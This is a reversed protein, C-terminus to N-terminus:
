DAELQIARAPLAIGYLRDGRRGARHIQYPGSARKLVRELERNIKSVEERFRRESWGPGVGWSRRSGSHVRDALRKAFSDRLEAAPVHCRPCGRCDEKGCGALRREALMSYIAYRVTSLRVERGACTLHGVTPNLRARPETVADLDAQLESVLEHFSRAGLSGLDRVARLRPFPLDALDVRVERGRVKVSKGAATRHWLWAKPKPPPYFFDTGELERPHVLVHSLRDDRRGFLMMAAALLYGMTKRGGAISAHLPPQGDSTWGAVLKTIQEAVAENEASSRVDDLPRGAADELVIVSGPSFRFRRAQPCDRRFASWRRATGFLTQEVISRGTATTVVHVDVEGQTAPLLCHITETIVQPSAGAVFLLTGSTM